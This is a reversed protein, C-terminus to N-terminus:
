VRKLQLEVNQREEGSRLCKLEFTGALESGHNKRRIDDEKKQLGKIDILFNTTKYNSSHIFCLLKLRSL